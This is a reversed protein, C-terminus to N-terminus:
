GEWCSEVFNLAIGQNEQDFLLMLINKRNLQHISGLTKYTPLGM